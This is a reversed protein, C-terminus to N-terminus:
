NKLVMIGDITDFSFQDPYTRELKIKEDECYLIFRLLKRIKNTRVIWISIIKYIKNNIICKDGIKIESATIIKNQEM